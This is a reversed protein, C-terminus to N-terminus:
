DVAPVFTLAQGNLGPSQIFVDVFTCEAGSIDFRLVSDNGTSSAYLLGDPGIGLGRPNLYDVGDPPECVRLLEGTEPDYERVSTTAAPDGFPIESSTLLTGSPSLILDLPSLLDPASEDITLTVTGTAVDVILLNGDGSGGAQVPAAGNAVFLTSGGDSFVFGRIFESGSLDDSSLAIGEFAGSNPDFEVVNNNPPRAGNFLNGGPGVVLGGANLQLGTEPVVFGFDVINRVFRGELDYQAIRNEGGVVVLAGDDPFGTEAFQRPDNDAQSGGPVYFIVDRPDELSSGDTVLPGILDGTAGSFRLPTNVPPAGSPIGNAFTAPNNQGDVLGQSVEGGGATVVVDFAVEGGGPGADLDTPGDNSPTDDGCASALCLTLSLLYIRQLM